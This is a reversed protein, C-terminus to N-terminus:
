ACAHGHYNIIIRNSTDIIIGTWNQRKNTADGDGGHDHKSSHILNYGVVCVGGGGGGGREM